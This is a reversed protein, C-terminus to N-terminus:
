EEGPQSKLLGFEYKLVALLAICATEVRLVQDGLTVPVLGLDQIRQIEQLSFGGESGVFVWVEDLGQPGWNRALEQVACPAAGEYAFLGARRVGPNTFDKLLTEFPVPENLPMLDGRGSQQTASVIIKQWREIKSPPLSDAKRVFSFESFFPQVRYAGMEVAKEVVDDMVNFRPVSLCLVIHPKAIQAVKREAIKRAYARKKSVNTVEVLWAKGTQGLVEFKSNKEQRCVDFIHHFPDGDITVGEDDFASADLWYRRM